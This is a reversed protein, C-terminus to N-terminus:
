LVKPEEWRDNEDDWHRNDYLNVCFMLYWVQWSFDVGAHDGKTSVNLRFNLDSAHEPWWSLQASFSKNRTLKIDFTADKNKSFM